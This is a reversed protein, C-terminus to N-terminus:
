GRLLELARLYSGGLIKGIRDPKWGRRLMADVLKPLELCTPMDRPTVIMGDWDSGLSAHDDGVTKVIHALHDVITEASVGSKGLFSTQYMVGITGGTDAVARLQEDDINRWHPYVGTIGTHTVILPQSKDHVEVADFFGRRSIHALDVFIKRANLRRVFDKGATSLGDAPAGFPKPASTEGLKSTSLHVITIRVVLNDPIVDIAAEDYDLANGGQIGIWAAHKEAARAARYEAATRVVAVDAHCSELIGRLREINARFIRARMSRPKLPNTTIVWIGGTVGAERLRPLDSQSMFRAGFPGHGHRKTLDYGFIRTWIFSDLHLDIVDSALHLEIAERSVGLSAAWAAPDARHDAFALAGM